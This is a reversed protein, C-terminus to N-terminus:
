GNGKNMRQSIKRVSAALEQRTFVKREELQEVLGCWLVELLTGSQAAKFASAKRMEQLLEEPSVTASEITVSSEAGELDGATFERAWFNFNGLLEVGSEYYDAEPSPKVQWAIRVPAQRGSTLQIFNGQWNVQLTRRGRIRAGHQSVEVTTVIEKQMEAGTPGIITLMLRHVAPIRDSRRDKKSTRM